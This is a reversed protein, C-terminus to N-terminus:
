FDCKLRFITDQSEYVVSRIEEPEFEIVIKDMEMSIVKM